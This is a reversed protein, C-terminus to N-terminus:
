FAAAPDAAMPETGADLGVPAARRQRARWINLTITKLWAKFSRGPDYRFTPLERLLTAFVDQILDAADAPQLGARVAWAHILPAYLEVLRDWATVDDLRRVRELLTPTTSDM